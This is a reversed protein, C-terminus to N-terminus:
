CTGAQSRRADEGGDVGVGLAHRGPDDGAADAREGAGRHELALQVELGLAVVQPPQQHALRAAVGRHRARDQLGGVRGSASQPTRKMSTEPQRGIHPCPVIPTAVTSTSVPITATVSGSVM